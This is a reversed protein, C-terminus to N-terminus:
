MKGAEKDTTHSSTEPISDSKMTAKGDQKM